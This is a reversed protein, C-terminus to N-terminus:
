IYIVLVADLGVARHRRVLRDTDLVVREVREEGLGAGALV